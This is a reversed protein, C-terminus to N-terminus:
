IKCLIENKLLEISLAKLGYVGRPETDLYAVETLQIDGHDDELFQRLQSMSSRQTERLRNLFLGVDSNDDRLVQNAVVHRVKIPQDPAEFTLDNLLRVSERVALETPITVILFETKEQNSFLDELEYMQIQFSLLAQKASQASNNVDAEGSVASSIMM